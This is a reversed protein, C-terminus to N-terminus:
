LVCPNGSYGSGCESVTCLDNQRNNDGQTGGGTPGSRPPGGASPYWVEPVVRREDSRAPPYGVEPIGGGGPRVQGPLPVGAPPPYGVEPFLHLVQYAATPIGRANVCSSKRTNQKLAGRWLFWERWVSWKLHESIHNRKNAIPQHLKRCKKLTLIKRLHFLFLIFVAWLGNFLSILGIWIWDFSFRILELKECVCLAPLTSM